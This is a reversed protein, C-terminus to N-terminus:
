EGVPNGVRVCSISMRGDASARIANVFSGNDVQFVAEQGAGIFFGANTATGASSTLTLYANTSSGIRILGSPVVLASTSASSNTIALSVTNVLSYIM